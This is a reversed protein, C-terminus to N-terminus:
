ETVVRAVPYRRYRDDFFPSRQYFWQLRARENGAFDPDNELKSRFEAALQPDDELMARALPEMVYAEVYETRTLIELFYGWQFLSDPSDPELLLVALTGLAQDTDIRFSGSPLDLSQREREIRGPKVRVRGEYATGRHDFGTGGDDVAAEPLRYIQARVTTSETLTEVEIGHLRLKDAIPSWAAPIYYASPRDAVAAPVSLYHFVVEQDIPEGTWRVVEGGTIPSAVRESRIAKITRTERRADDGGTWSLVVPDPRSLRDDENAQRLSRGREGVVELTADLFVYTGLVRQYFPKLSHNEVLVTALHRASGYGNSFRATGMWVVNGSSLDSGDMPFIFPGPVHGMAELADDVAPAMTEEIWRSSAPSWGYDPTAGWTIDYQYDAGDTVHLDLYLDPRWENLATVVAAVEETELKAYDRNLNLNRGNTRWGMEEPGRQNARSFRSSREHGDVSLIPVFLFSVRDLLERRTGLVTMDRLLMMGADKGDIEGSHIGAQALVIPRGSAILGEPTHELGRAAIAMVIDRGEASRGITTLSIDPTAAALRRLWSMTEAYDPSRTLGSVEFTTAWPHDAPLALELSKGHWPPLPPLFDAPLRGGPLGDAAAPQTPLLAAPLLTLILLLNPVSRSAFPLRM